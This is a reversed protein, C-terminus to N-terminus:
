KLIFFPENATAARGKGDVVYLYLRYPGPTSPLPVSVSQGSGSWVVNPRSEGEGMSNSKEIERRIEWEYTLLGGNPDSVQAKAEIYKGGAVKKRAADFELRVLEPALNKPWKGTWAKTMADVMNTAEGSPLFMSFWTPTTEQKDGWLFAYSGLCRGPQGAIVKEYNSLYLEAKETSTAELPAGWETKPSEWWGIPGFETVIYAKTWGAKKLREPLTTLPGYCNVGLVDVDPAFEQIHQIKQDTIDAVVTMVPHNKDLKKALEALAGVAKWVEPTDNNMEMENGLAWMLLSPHNKFKLINAKVEEYQKSVQEKDNYDFGHAKHGLWVGGVVTLGLKQADALKGAIEEAGWTRTSNGGAEKLAALSHSGAAGKIFYPKGARKLVWKGSVKSISVPVPKNPLNFTLSAALFLSACLM